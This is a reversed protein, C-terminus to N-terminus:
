ANGHLIDHGDDGTIWDNGLKGFVADDGTGARITDHDDGGVIRDDGHMGFLRNLGEIGLLTDNGDGGLLRDDGPGAILRDDHLGGSLLDNGAGGDLHDRGNEGMLSDHGANGHLTDNDPGGFGSDNGLGAVLLDLGPGGLLLDDGDDGALRDHGDNGHLSDNGSGGALTDDSERAVLMDPGGMGTLRDAGSTGFVHQGLTTSVPPPLPPKTIDIEPLNYHTIPFLDNSFDAETLQRGDSTIIDITVDQFRLKIGGTRPQFDIQHLSRIMGLQSLDLHDVGPEFGKILNRGSTNAPVFIDAGSGGFMKVNSSTAILIDDGEGGLMTTTGPQGLIMDNEATGVARGTTTSGTWGIKGPDFVLQTIGTETASSIFLVIKGDIVKAEIDSIDALTMDDRDALTRLHLLRGDPQLTFVSFGDDVGGAFVFTRGDITATELSTVAQFATYGEDLVHDTPKLKGDALLQFVTLSSSGAAAVIVYSRDEVHVAKIDTPVAYGTGMAAVHLAKHAIEGSNSIRYTSIFDGLASIAVLFRGEGAHTEIIKDLSSGTPADISLHSHSAPQAPRGRADMEHIAIDLEDRHALYLFSGAPSDYQGLSSIPADIGTGALIPTFEGLKGTETVRIGLHEAGGLHSHHIFTGGNMNLLSIDPEQQYTFEPLFPRTDAPRLLEGSAPITYSSLGGGRFETTAFLLTRGGISLIELDSIGSLWKTRTVGYTGVHQYTLM